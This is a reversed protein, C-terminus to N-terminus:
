MASQGAISSTDIKDMHEPFVMIQKSRDKFDAFLVSDYGQEKLEPIKAKLEKSSNKQVSVDPKKLNSLDFRSITSAEQSQSVM